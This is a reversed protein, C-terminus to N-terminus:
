KVFYRHEIVTVEEPKNKEIARKVSCNGTIGRYVLAGGLSLETIATLPSKIVTRVGLGLIFGGAIVSLIRESGAINGDVCDENIKNKVRKLVSNVLGSM